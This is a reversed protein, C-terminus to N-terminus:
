PTSKLTQGTELDLDSSQVRKLPSLDGSSLGKMLDKKEQALQNIKPMYIRWQLVNASFSLFLLALLLYLIYNHEDVAFGVLQLLGEQPLRYALIAITVALFLAILGYLNGSQALSFLNDLGSKVVDPWTAHDSSSSSPKAEDPKRPIPKKKPAVDLRSNPKYLKFCERGSARAPPTYPLIGRKSALSPPPHSADVM